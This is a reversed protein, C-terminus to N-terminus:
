KQANGKSEKGLNGDTCRKEWAVNEGTAILM